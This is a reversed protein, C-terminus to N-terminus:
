ANYYLDNLEPQLLILYKKPSYNSLIHEWARQLDEIVLATKNKLSVDEAFITNLIIANKSYNKIEEGLKINDDANEQGLEPIGGTIVILKKNAKKALKKAYKLSSKASLFNINYSDDIVLYGHMNVVSRRRDPLELNMCTHEVIDTPIDFHETVKLAFGLNEKAADSDLNTKITRNKYKLKKNKIDKKSFHLAEKKSFKFVELLAKKLEARNKFRELHQDEINTLLSIDPPTIKCIKEIEGIYYTDMEVLLVRTSKNADNLIWSAVGIPTNITGPTSQTKYNYKILQHVFNKVTTKGYSGAIAVVTMNQSLDKEFKLAAKKQLRDKQLNIYPGFIINALLVFFPILLPTLIILIFTNLSYFIIELIIFLTVTLFLTRKARLTYVLNQRKQFNRRVFFRRLRNLYRRSDYEELQLLYLFDLFPFVINFLKLLSM